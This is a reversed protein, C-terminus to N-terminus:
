GSSLPLAGNAPTAVCTGRELLRLGPRAPVGSPPQSLAEQGQPDGGLLFRVHQSPGHVAGAARLLARCPTNTCLVSPLMPQSGPFHAGASGYISLVPFLPLYVTSAFLLRRRARGPQRPSHLRRRVPSSSARARRMCARAWARQEWAHRIPASSASSTSGPTGSSPPTPPCLPPLAGSSAAAPRWRGAPAPVAPAPQCVTCANAHLTPQWVLACSHKATCWAPVALSNLRSCDM